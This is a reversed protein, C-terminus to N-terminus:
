YDGNVNVSGDEDDDDDKKLKARCTPCEYNTKLWPRICDECFMHKCPLQRVRSKKTFNKICIYCEKSIDINKVLVFNNLAVGLKQQVSKMHNRIREEEERDEIEEGNLIKCEVESAREWENNWDIFNTNYKGNKSPRIPKDNNRNYSRKNEM